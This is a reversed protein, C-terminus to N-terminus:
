IVGKTSLLNRLSFAKVSLFSAWASLFARPSPSLFSVLFLLLLLFMCFGTTTVVGCFDTIVASVEVGCFGTTLVAATAVAATATVM